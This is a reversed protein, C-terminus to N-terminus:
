FRFAVSAGYARAESVFVSNRELVKHTAIGPMFLGAGTGVFAIGLLTATPATPDKSSSDSAGVVLCVLGIAVLIGSAALLGERRVEEVHYGDPIPQRESWSDIRQPWHCHHDVCEQGRDCGDEDVCAFARPAVLSLVLAVAVARRKM